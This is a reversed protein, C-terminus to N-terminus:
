LEARTDGSAMVPHWADWSQRAVFRPREAFGGFQLACAEPLNGPCPAVATQDERGLIGVCHPQIPRAPGQHTPATRAVGFSTFAESARGSSRARCSSMRHNALRSPRTM